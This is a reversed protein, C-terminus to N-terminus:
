GEWAMSQNFAGASTNFQALHAESMETKWRLDLSIDGSHKEYYSRTRDTLTVFAQEPDDLQGRAAVYQTGSNGGLPHQENGQFDLMAPDYTEGLFECLQKATDEPNTALDEYRLKLKPGDFADFLAQSNTIQDVWSDIQAQPDRDPYKRIRSNIVARGDRTLFILYPQSHGDRLEQAREIIWNTDKTSDIILAADVHKAVQPYLARERDWHFNPWVPCAPGCIKCVRKRLPKKEDHLYRAKGGEGMYFAGPIGGLIMGLLTSGSHGAGCIMVGKLRKGNQM